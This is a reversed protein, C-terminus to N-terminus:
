PTRVLSNVPVGDLLLRRLGSMYTDHIDLTIPDMDKMDKPMCTPNALRTITTLMADSDQMNLHKFRATFSHEGGSQYLFIGEVRSSPDIWHIRVSGQTTDSRQMENQQQTAHVAAWGGDPTALTISQTISPSTSETASTHTEVCQAYQLCALAEAAVDRTYM